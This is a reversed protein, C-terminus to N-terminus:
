PADDEIWIIKPLIIRIFLLIAIGAVWHALSYGGFILGFIAFPVGGIFASILIFGARSTTLLPLRM